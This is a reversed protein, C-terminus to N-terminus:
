NRMSIAGIPRITHTWMFFFADLRLIGGL